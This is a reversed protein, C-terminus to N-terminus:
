RFSSILELLNLVLQSKTWASSRTLRNLCKLKDSTHSKTRTDGIQAILLEQADESLTHLTRTGGTHSDQDAVQDWPPLTTEGPTKIPHSSNQIYNGVAQFCTTRVMQTARWTESLETQFCLMQDVHKADSQSNPQILTQVLVTSWPTTTSCARRRQDM